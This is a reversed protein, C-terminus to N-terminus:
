TPRGDNTITTGASGKSLDENNAAKYHDARLEKVARWAAGLQQHSEAASYAHSLHGGLAADCLKLAARLREIEARLEEVDNVYYCRVTHPPHSM